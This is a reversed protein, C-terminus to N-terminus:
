HFSIQKPPLIFCNNQGDLQPHPVVPSPTTRCAVNAWWRRIGLGSVSWDEEQRNVKLCAHLFSSQLQLVEGKEGKARSCDRESIENGQRAFWLPITAVTNSFASVSCWQWWSAKGCQKGDKTCFVALFVLVRWYIFLCVMTKEDGSGRRSKTELDASHTATPPSFLLSLWSAQKGSEAALINLLLFDPFSNILFDPFLNIPSSLTNTVTHLFCWLSCYEKYPTQTVACVAKVAGQCCKWDCSLSRM